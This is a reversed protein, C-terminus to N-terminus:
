PAAQKHKAHETSRVVIWKSSRVTNTQPIVIGHSGLYVGPPVELLMSKNAQTRCAEIDNIAQQLGDQDHATYPGYGKSECNWAGGVGSVPLTVTYDPVFEEGPPAGWASKGDRLTNGYPAQFARQQCFDTRSEVDEKRWRMGRPYWRSVFRFDKTEEKSQTELHYKMSVTFDACAFRIGAFLQELFPSTQGDGGDRIRHSEGKAYMCFASAKIFVDEAASFTRPFACVDTVIIPSDGGNVFSFESRMPDDGEEYDMEGALHRVTDKRELAQQKALEMAARAAIQHHWSTDIGFFVIAFVVVAIVVGKRSLPFGKLVALLGFLVTLFLLGSGFLFNPDPSVIQYVWQAFSLCFGGYLFFKEMDPKPPGSAPATQPLAANDVLVIGAAQMKKLVRIVEGDTKNRDSSNGM